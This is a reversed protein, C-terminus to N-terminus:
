HLVTAHQLVGSGTVRLLEEAEIRARPDGTKLRRLLRDVAADVEGCVYAEEANARRLYDLLLAAEMKKVVLHPHLATLLAQCDAKAVMHFLWMPRDSLTQRRDCRIKPVDEAGAVRRSLERAAAVEAMNASVISVSPWMCRRGRQSVLSLSGDGDVFGALWAADSGKTVPMTVPARALLVTEAERRAEEDGKKIRQSLSALARDYETAIYRGRAARSLVDLMLQAELTKGRLYPLVAEVLKQVDQKAVVQFAFFPRKSIKSAVARRNTALKRGIIGEVLERAVSLGAEDVLGMAFHALVQAKRKPHMRLGFCGEADLLGALWALKDEANITM